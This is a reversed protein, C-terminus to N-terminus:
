EGQFIDRIQGPSRSAAPLPEPEQFTVPHDASEPEGEENDPEVPLPDTIIIVPEPEPWSEVSNNFYPGSTDNCTVDTTSNSIRVIIIGATGATTTDHGIM